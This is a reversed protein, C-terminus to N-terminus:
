KCAKAQAECGPVGQVSGMGALMCARCAESDKMPDGEACVPQMACYTGVCEGLDFIFLWEETTLPEICEKCPTLDPEPSPNMGLYILCDQSLCQLADRCTYPPPIYMTTGTTSDDPEGTTFPIEMTAVIETVGTTTAPLETLVDSNCAACALAAALAVRRSSHHQLFQGRSMEAVIVASAAAVLHEMGCGPAPGSSPEGAAAEAVEAQMRLAAREPPAM